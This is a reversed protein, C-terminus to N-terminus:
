PMLAASPRPPPTTPTRPAPSRHWPKPWSRGTSRTSCDRHDGVDWEGPRVAAPVTQRTASGTSLDLHTPNDAEAAVQLVRRVESADTLKALGVIAAQKSTFDDIAPAHALIQYM